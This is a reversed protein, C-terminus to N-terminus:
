TNPLRIGKESLFTIVKGAKKPPVVLELPMLVVDIMNKNDTKERYDRLYPFENLVMSTYKVPVVLTGQKLRSIVSDNMKESYTMNPNTGVIGGDDLKQKFRYM